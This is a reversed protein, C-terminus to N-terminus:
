RGGSQQQQQPRLSALQQELDQVRQQLKENHQQLQQLLAQSAAHAQRECQLQDQQELVQLALQRMDGNSADTGDDELCYVLLNLYM